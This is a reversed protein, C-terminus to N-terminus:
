RRGHGSGQITLSTDNNGKQFTFAANTVNDKSSQITWSTDHNGKQITLASNLPDEDRGRGTPDATQITVQNDYNGLQAVWSLNDPVAHHQDAYAVSTASLLAVAAAATVIKM